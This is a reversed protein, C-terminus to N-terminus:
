CSKRVTRRTLDLPIIIIIITVIIIRHVIQVCATMIDSRRASGCMIYSINYLHRHGATYYIAHQNARALIMIIYYLSTYAVHVSRSCRVNPHVATAADAAAAAASTILLSCLLNNYNEDTYM